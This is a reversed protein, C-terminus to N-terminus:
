SSTRTTTNQRFGHLSLSGYKNPWPCIPAADSLLVKEACYDETENLFCGAHSKVKIIIVKKVMRKTQNFSFDRWFAGRWRSWAFVQQNFTLLIMLQVHRNCCAEVKQLISLIGASSRGCATVAFVYGQCNARLDASCDAAAVMYCCSSFWIDEVALLTSWIARPLTATSGFPRHFIGENEM